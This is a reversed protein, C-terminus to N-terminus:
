RYLLLKILKRRFVTLGLAITVIHGISPLRHNDAGALSSYRINVVPDWLSSVTSVKATDLGKLARPLENLAEAFAPARQKLSPAVPAEATDVGCLTLLGAVEPRSALADIALSAGASEGVLYVTKGQEVAADIAKDVKTRKSSLDGRDYWRMPVLQVSLGSRAWSWLARSRFRDYSDGLGPIYLIQAEQPM